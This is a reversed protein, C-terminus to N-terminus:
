MATYYGKQVAELANLSTLKKADFAGTDIVEKWQCFLTGYNTIDMLLNKFLVLSQDWRFVDRMIPPTWLAGHEALLLVTSKLRKKVARQAYFDNTM